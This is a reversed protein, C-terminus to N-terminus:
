KPGASGPDSTMLAKASVLLLPMGSGPSGTPVAVFVHTGGIVVGPHSILIVFPPQIM